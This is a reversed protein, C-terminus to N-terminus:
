LVMESTVPIASLSRVDHRGPSSNIHVQKTGQSDSIVAHLVPGPNILFDITDEKGAGSGPTDVQVYGSVVGSLGHQM